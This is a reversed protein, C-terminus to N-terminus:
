LRENLVQITGDEAVLYIRGREEKSRGHDALNTPVFAFGDIPLRFREKGSLADLAILSRGQGATPDGLVYVNNRGVSAVKRVGAQRWIEEGTSLKVAFLTRKEPRSRRDVAICYVVEQNARLSYVVPADEIPAEAAFSWFPEGDTTELCYLKYDTSGVLIWRSFGVPDALIRAGSAFTWSLGKTYGTRAAYKYVRADTSAVYVNGDHVIPSGEVTGGTKHTWDDLKQNKKVGYARANLSGVFIAVDDASISTSIPFELQQKWLLDGYRLDLCYVTDLQSVFVEGPRVNPGPPYEYVAPAHKLPEQPLDFFWKTEGNTRSVLKLHGGAADRARTAIFLGKGRLEALYVGSDFNPDRPENYWLTELGQPQLLAEDVRPRKLSAASSAVTPQAECGVLSLALGVVATSWLTWPIESRSM